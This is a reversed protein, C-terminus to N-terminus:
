WKISQTLHRNVSGPAPRPLPQALRFWPSCPPSGVCVAGQTQLPIWPPPGIIDYLHPLKEHWKGPAMHIMKCVQMSIGAGAGM